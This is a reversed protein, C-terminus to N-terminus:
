EEIDFPVSLVSGLEPRDPAFARLRYDDHDHDLSLDDFVAVGNETERTGDGEFRHDRGDVFFEVEIEVGSLRVVDGRADVIAIEIAPSIEDGDDTDSPQVLFVLGVPEPDRVTVEVTQSLTVEGNVVATIVRTGSRDSSLTGTAIGDAGTEGSPQVLQNDNGSASLEVRAGALPAGTGDRVTVTIISQGSGADFSNPSATITSLDASPEGAGDGIATATFSVVGVGSIVANLLQEGAAPGLTWRSGAFGAEDTVSTEPSASGGGAGVVWAVPRGAVGEGEDDVLRVVLPEPLETGVEASQGDGSALELTLTSTRQADASFQASLAMGVVEADVEQRGEAGGLIWRSSAEGAADTVATDPTLTGGEAGAGLTFAVQVGPVPNEEDDVVLVVLPDSLETGVSGAQEDGVAARIEAPTQVDPLILDEGGCAASVSVCLSLALARVFRV